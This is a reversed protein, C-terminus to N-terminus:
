IIGKRCNLIYFLSQLSIVINFITLIEPNYVKGSFYMIVTPVISISVLIYMIQIMSKYRSDKYITTRVAQTFLGFLVISFGLDMFLDYDSFLSYADIVIWIVFLLLILCDYILHKKRSMM